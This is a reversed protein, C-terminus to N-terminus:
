RKKRRRAATKKGGRHGMGKSCAAVHKAYFNIASQLKKKAAAKAATKSKKKAM